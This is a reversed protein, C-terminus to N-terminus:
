DYDSLHHKHSMKTFGGAGADDDDAFSAWEELSSFKRGEVPDWVEGTELIEIFYLEELEANTLAQLDHQIQSM